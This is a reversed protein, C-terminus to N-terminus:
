KGQGYAQSDVHFGVFKWVGNEKALRVHITADGKEFIAKASYHAVEHRANSIYVVDAEGEAGVFEKMYGLKNRSWDFFERIQADTTGAKRNMEERDSCERFVSFDWNQLVKPLNENVFAQSESDIGGGKPLLRSAMIGTMILILLAVTVTIFLKM